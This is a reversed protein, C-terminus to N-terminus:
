RTSRAKTARARTRAVLTERRDPFAADFTRVAEDGLALASTADFSIRGDLVHIALAVKGREEAHARALDLLASWVTDQLAKGWRAALLPHGRPMQDTAAVLGAGDQTTGFALTVILAARGTQETELDVSVVAFRKIMRVVVSDIYVLAEDGLDHWLVAREGGESSRGPATGGALARQILARAGAEDLRDAVAYRLRRTGIRTAM